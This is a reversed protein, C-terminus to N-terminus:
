QGSQQRRAAASLRCHLYILSLLLSNSCVPLSPAREKPKKSSIKLDKEKPNTILIAKLKGILTAREIPERIVLSTSKPLMTVELQEIM